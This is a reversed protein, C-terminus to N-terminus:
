MVARVAMSGPALMFVMAISTAHKSFNTVIENIEALCGGAFAVLFSTVYTPLACTDNRCTGLAGQVSTQSLRMCYHSSALHIADYIEDLSVRM